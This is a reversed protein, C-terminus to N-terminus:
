SVNDRRKVRKFMWARGKDLQGRKWESMRRVPLPWQLPQAVLFFWTVKLSAPARRCEIRRRKRTFFRRSEQNKPRKRGLVVKPGAKEFSMRPPEQLRHFVSGWKNVELHTVHSSIQSWCFRIDPFVDNEITGQIMTFVLKKSPPFHSKPNKVGSIWIERHKAENQM